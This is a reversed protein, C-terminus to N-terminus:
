LCVGESVLPLHLDGGQIACLLAKPGYAPVLPFVNQATWHFFRQCSFTERFFASRQIQPLCVLSSFEFTLWEDRAIHNQLSISLISLQTPLFVASSGHMLWWGLSKWEWLLSYATWKESKVRGSIQGPHTKCNEWLLHSPILWSESLLPSVFHSYACPWFLFIRAM